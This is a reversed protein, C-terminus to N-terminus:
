NKLIYSSQLESVTQSGNEAVREMIALGQRFDGQRIVDELIKALRALRLGGVMASTIRLSIAADLAGAVDKNQVAATLKALRQDWMAAYDRAFRLALELGDLQEELEQLTDSDVLPLLEDYDTTMGTAEAVMSGAPLAAAPTGKGSPQSDPIFM